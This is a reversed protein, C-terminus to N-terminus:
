GCIVEQVLRALMGEVKDTLEPDPFPMREQKPDDEGCNSQRDEGQYQRREKALKQRADLM